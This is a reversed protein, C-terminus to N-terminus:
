ERGITELIKLIKIRDNFHKKWRGRNAKINPLYNMYASFSGFNTTRNKYLNHMNKFAKKRAKLSFNRKQEIATPDYQNCLIAAPIYHTSSYISKNREMNFPNRKM